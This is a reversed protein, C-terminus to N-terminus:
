DEGNSSTAAGSLDPQRQAAAVGHEYKLRAAFKARSIVDELEALLAPTTHLTIRGERATDLVAKPPGGWLFPSVVTNTDAVVRM